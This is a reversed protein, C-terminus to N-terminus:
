QTAYIEHVVESDLSFSLYSAASVHRCWPYRRIINYSSTTYNTTFRDHMKRCQDCHIRTLDLVGDSAKPDALRLQSQSLFISSFIICKEERPFHSRLAQINTHICPSATANTLTGFSFALNLQIAFYHRAPLMEMRLFWLFGRMSPPSTM